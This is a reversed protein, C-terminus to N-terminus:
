RQVKLHNLRSVCIFASSACIFASSFGPHLESLARMAVFDKARKDANMQAEDANMQTEANTVGRAYFGAM